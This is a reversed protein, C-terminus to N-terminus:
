SGKGSRIKILRLVDKYSDDPDELDIMLWRQGNGEQTQHYIERIKVSSDPLKAEVAEKERRGVVVMVTFYAERPYVTCRARGSKKFKVNWGPEMSCCSYEIKESVGYSEKIESCFKEFLPNRIVEAIEELTPCFTKDKLDIMDSVEDEKNKVSRVDSAKKM